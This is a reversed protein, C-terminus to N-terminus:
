IGSSGFGKKGRKSKQSFKKVLKPACQEYRQVILQAVRNGKPITVPKDTVNAILVMLEGHYGADIVGGITTLGLHKAVSSRDWVLGVTGKPLNLAIGTPVATRAQPKVTITKSSYLDLGADDPHAKTPTRAYPTLKKIFLEM